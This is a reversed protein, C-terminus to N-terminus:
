YRLHESPATLRCRFPYAESLRCPDTSRTRRKMMTSMSELVMTFRDAACWGEPEKHSAPMVEGELRWRLDKPLANLIWMHIGTEDSIKAGSQRAPPSM